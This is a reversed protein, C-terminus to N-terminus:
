EHKAARSCTSLVLHQSQKLFKMMSALKSVEEDGQFWHGFFWFRVGAGGFRVESLLRGFFFPLLFLLAWPVIMLFVFQILLILM